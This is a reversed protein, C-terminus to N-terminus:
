ASTGPDAGKPGIEAIARRLIAAIRLQETPCAESHEFLAQKLAVRAHVFEALWDTQADPPSTAGDQGPTIAEAGGDMSQNALTRRMWEMKRSAHRLQAFLQDARARHASLFARGPAALGYKKRSGATQQTVHGLEHLAALAPYLTGPSPKYFGKSRDALAQSLAYGHLSEGQEDLLCLLMLALDAASFKRGRTLYAPTEALTHHTSPYASAIM